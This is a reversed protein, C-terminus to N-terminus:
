IHILSLTAVIHTWAGIPLVDNSYIPAGTAWASGNTSFYFAAKDTSNGWSIAYGEATASSAQTTAILQITGGATATPYVWMSMTVSNPKLAAAGGCNVLDDSGDFKLAYSGGKAAKTWATGGTLTGDSTSKADDATTGTGDDFKWYSVLGSSGTDISTNKLVTMSQTANALTTIEGATLARKWIAVDDLYLVDSSQAVDFGFRVGVTSDRFDNIGAGATAEYTGNIYIKQANASKVRSAAVHYWTNASLATTSYVIYSQGNVITQFAMKRDTGVFLFISWGSGFGDKGRSVAYINGAPNSPFKVWCSITVDDSDAIIDNGTDAYDATGGNNLSLATGFKGSSEYAAGGTLTANYGGALDHATTGSAEDFNWSGLLDKYISPPFTHVTTIAVKNTQWSTGSHTGGDFETQTDDKKVETSAFLKAVGGTVTVLTSDYTYNGATDFTETLTAANAVLAWATLLFILVPVGVHARGDKNCSKKHINRIPNSFWANMM